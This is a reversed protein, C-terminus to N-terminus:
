NFLDAIIEEQRTKDLLYKSYVKEGDHKSLTLLANVAEDTTGDLSIHKSEESSPVSQYQKLDIYEVNDTSNCLFRMMSDYTKSQSSMALNSIKVGGLWGCIGRNHNKSSIVEGCATDCTGLSFLQIKSASVNKQRLIEKAEILALLSPNNMCLGGDVFFQEVNDDPCKTHYIPFILPAASTAMCVDVLPYNDDRNKGEIHSTKFVWLSSTSANITPVCVAIGRIRYMEGLTKNFFIEKLSSKLFTQGEIRKKKGAIIWKLARASVKKPIPNPFINKGKSKYLEIIKDLTIGNALAIALIGGTSTGVILDFKKGIDYEGNKGFRCALTKLFNASYIGRMGGGDISLVRFVKKVEIM